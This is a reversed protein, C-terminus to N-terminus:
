LWPREVWNWETPSCGKSTDVLGEASSLKEEAFNLVDQPHTTIHHKHIM